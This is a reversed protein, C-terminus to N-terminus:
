NDKGNNEGGQISRRMREYIDRHGKLISDCVELVKDLTGNAARYWRKLADLDELRVYGGCDALAPDINRPLGLDVMVTGGPNLLHKHRLLDLVPERADVASIVADAEPLVREIDDLQLTAIRQAGQASLAPSNRYYAWSIRGCGRALLAAVIGQGMVGTGIVLVHRTELGHLQEALYRVGLEELEEIDLLPEVEHRIDKSVHLAADCLERIISGAWGHAIAEDAAEKMQSAVHFEGPLQSDMGATVMCLHAFAEFGHKMYYHSQELSDFKLLRRLIGCTSADKSIAAVVEVRNCTNLILFEHVGWIQRIMEGLSERAAEDLHYPARQDSGLYEHSTGLVLLDSSQISDLHKRLNDKILRSQRCSRGSTSVAILVDEARIIAPTVFDGDPWNGDACCCPIGAAKAAELIRRNIRKEDTCAFVMTCGRVDEDTFARSERVIRGEQALAILEPVCVPCVLTVAAGSDLLLEVKRLGVRGGGVVLVRRGELFANVPFTKKVPRTNRM